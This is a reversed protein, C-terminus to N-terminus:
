WQGFQYDLGLDSVLLWVQRVFLILIALFVIALIICNSLLVMQRKYIEKFILSILVPQLAYSSLSSFANSSSRDFPWVPNPSLSDSFTPSFSNSYSSPYSLCCLLNFNLSFFIVSTVLVFFLFRLFFPFNLYGICGGVWPCHHDMALVCRNCTSCHHARPPKSRGCSRCLPLSAHRFDNPITGPDVTSTLYYNIYVLLMASNCLSFYFVNAIPQAWNNIVVIFAMASAHLYVMLFMSLFRCCYDIIKSNRMTSHFKIKTNSSCM